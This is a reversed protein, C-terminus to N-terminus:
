KYFDGKVEKYSLRAAEAETRLKIYLKRVKQIEAEKHSVSISIKDQIVNMKNMVYFMLNITRLSRKKEYNYIRKAIKKRGSQTLASLDIFQHWKLIDTMDSLEIGNVKVVYNNIKVKNLISILANNYNEMIGKVSSDITKTTIMKKNKKLNINNKM